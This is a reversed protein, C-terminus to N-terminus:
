YSVQIRACKGSCIKDKVKVQKLGPVINAGTKGAALYSLAKEFDAIPLVTLVPLM